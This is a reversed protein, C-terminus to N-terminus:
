PGFDRILAQANRVGQIDNCASYGELAEAAIKKASETEGNLKLARALRLKSSAIWRPHKKETWYSLCKRYITAATNPDNEALTLDGIRAHIDQEIDPKNKSQVLSLAKNLDRRALSYQGLAIQLSGIEQLALAEGTEDGLAVNEDRSRTLSQKAENLKGRRLQLVGLDLYLGPLLLNPNQKHRMILSDLHDREARELEGQAELVKGRLHLASAHEVENKAESAQLIALQASNLARDYDAKHYSELGSAILLQASTVGSFKLVTDPPKKESRPSWAVIAIGLICAVATLLWIRKASRNPDVPAPEFHPEEPAETARALEAEPQIDSLELTLDCARFTEVLVPRDVFERGLIRFLTKPSVGLESAIM